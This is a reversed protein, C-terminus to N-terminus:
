TPAQQGPVLSAAPMQFGARQHLSGRSLRVQLEGTSMRSAGSTSAALVSGQQDM